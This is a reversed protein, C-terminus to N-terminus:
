GQAGTMDGPQAPSALEALTRFIQERLVPDIAPLVGIEPRAFLYGQMLDINCGSLTKMGDLTEVGEAILRMGLRDGGACIGFLLAQRDRDTEIKQILAMDVKVIDPRLELLTNLGNFGTGFDDLAIRLGDRRFEDVRRRLAKYDQVIELETIEVIIRNTPFGVERASRMVERLGFRPHCIGGPTANISLNGALGVKVAAALALQQCRFNLAYLEESGRSELLLPPCGGEATRTLAEYGYILTEKSSVSVIPQFAVLFEEVAADRDVTTVKSLRDVM